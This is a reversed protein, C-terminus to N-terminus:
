SYFICVRFESIYCAPSKPILSGESENGLIGGYPEGCMILQTVSCAGMKDVTLRHDITWIKTWNIFMLYCILTHTQTLTYRATLVM